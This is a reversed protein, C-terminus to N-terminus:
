RDRQPIGLRQNARAHESLGVDPDEAEVGRAVSRRQRRPSSISHDTEVVEAVAAPLGLPLEPGGEVDIPNGNRGIAPENRRDVPVVALLVVVQIHHVSLRAFPELPDARSFTVGRGKRGIALPQEGATGGVNDNDPVDRVCCFTESSGPCVLEILQM